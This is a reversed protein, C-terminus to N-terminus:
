RNVGLSQIKNAVDSQGSIVTYNRAKLGNNLTLLGGVLSEGNLGRINNEIAFIQDNLFFYYTGDLCAIALKTYNGDTYSIALNQSYKKVASWDYDSNDEKKPCIGVAKNFYGDTYVADIYFFVGGSESELVLGLKPYKELSGDMMYYPKEESVTMEAEFYFDYGVADKFYAFQAGPATNEIYAYRSGDDTSLDGYGWGTHFNAVTGIAEGENYKVYEVPDPNTYTYPEFKTVPAPNEAEKGLIVIEGIAVSPKKYNLSVTLEIEMVPMENFELIIAGGPYMTSKSDSNWVYNFSLDNAEAWAYGDATKYKLRVSDILSVSLSYNLSNYLMVSRVNVWDDFKFNIVAECANDAKQTQYEKIFTYSHAKFVGDTLYKVDSNEATHSATVTASPALNEYGSVEAPLPQYSYTPGNAHMVLQDKGNKVFKIEDVALARGEALSKRDIFTHYAIMLKDGCRIFCHHGASQLHEWNNDTYLLAGGDAVSVKTFDGLPSTAVAQRVQYNPSFFPYVSFTLYYTGDHYYMFPAENVTAGEDQGENINGFQIVSNSMEESYDRVTTNFISTLQTLTSYDPTVWDKMKVGFIEQYALKNWTQHCAFYLYKDGTVPDIFPHADIVHNDIGERGPLIKSFDYVAEGKSLLKGDLNVRGDVNEFPGYPTTSIAVSVFNRDNDKISEASYFMYYIGDDYLVEPAFLNNFSWTESFDPAFAVSVYEWDTLNKSRWCQFGHCQILDSTGYAYFYGKEEGEEIYIVGPDAIPFNLENLYYLNKNYSYSDYTDLEYTKYDFDGIEAEPEGEDKKFFSCGFSFSLIGLLLVITLLLSFVRKLM